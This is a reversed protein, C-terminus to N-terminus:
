LIFRNVIALVRFQNVLDPPMMVDVRNRDNGSREVLLDRKFADFNEVIGAEELERYLALLEGRIVSPTVIAQGPGFRTGDSALKHRPYKQLIRARTAYRIYGLTAPTNIDLYSTDPMGWSNTQYMTVQREIAVVDGAQVMYTAIGDHLLLNREEMTWREERAPPIIGPLTLTQLPRASDRELSATAVVSNVAAWIYPPQPANGTGMCTVLQSNGGDGFAATEGHTGRYALYAISEMQRLPGWRSDLEATLARLSASDTYPCAIGHWQDDGLASIIEDMDPDATGGTFVTCAVALGSPMPEGFLGVRADLTNGTLGAWKCTLTVVKATASASVPLTLDANVAAALRTATVTLEEGAVVACAISRGAVYLYLTGSKTTVGSLTVTSTAKQGSSADDAALAWTETYGDAAKIATFMAHLMSGVGFLTAAQDASTVRIPSLAAHVGSALRQGIVLLRYPNVPTGTVANSSDFEMYALPVRISAPIGNFSISM